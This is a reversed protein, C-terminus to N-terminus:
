SAEMRRLLRRVVGVGVFIAVLPVSLMFLLMLGQGSGGDVNCTGCAFAPTALFCLVFVASAMALALHVRTIRM